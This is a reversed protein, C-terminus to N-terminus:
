KLDGQKKQYEKVVEQLAELQKIYKNCSYYNNSTVEGVTTLSIKSDADIDGVPDVLKQGKASLNHLQVFGKPVTCQTKKTIYKEIIKPNKKLTDLQEQIIDSERKHTVLITQVINQFSDQLGAVRAEWKIREEAVQGKIIDKGDSRGIFYVGVYSLIALLLIILKDAPILSTLKSWMM